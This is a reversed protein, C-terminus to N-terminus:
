RLAEELTRYERVEELPLLSRAVSADARAFWRDFEVAGMSSERRIESYSRLDQRVMAPSKPERKTVVLEFLKRRLEEDMYVLPAPAKSAEDRAYLDAVTVGLVGAIKRLTSGRPSVKGTEIKYVGEPSLGAAEALEAMSFGAIQRMRRVSEM